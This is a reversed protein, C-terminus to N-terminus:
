IFLMLYFYLIFSSLSLLYSKDEAPPLRINGISFETKSEATIPYVYRYIESIMDRERFHTLHVLDHLVCRHVFFFENLFILNM